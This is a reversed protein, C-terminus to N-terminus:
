IKRSLICVFKRSKNGFWLAKKLSCVRTIPIYLEVATLGLYCCVEARTFSTSLNHFDRRLTEQQHRLEAFQSKMQEM